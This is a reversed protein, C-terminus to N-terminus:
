QFALSTINASPTNPIPASGFSHTLPSFGSGVQPQTYTVDFQLVAPTAMTATEVLDIDFYGISDTVATRVGQAIIIGNNIFTDFNTVSVTAGVIPNEKEDLIYGFVTCTQPPTPEPGFYSYTLSLSSLAPTSSGTASHLLAYPVVYAGLSIPLSGANTQVDSALNSQAYSGDSIAWTVGNFWYNSAGIKLYFKVGDSGTATIGALFNFLADMTLAMNPAVYPSSTPYIQGTYNLTFLAASMQINANNTTYVNVNVTNALPLTAIHASIVAATNSQAFTLNSTTWVTGNWYLGNITYQPSNTDTITTSIWALISGLGSYTFTPLSITDANFNYDPLPTVSSPGVVSTYIALSSISFNANGDAPVGDTGVYAATSATRVGTTNVTAGFQSGNIFLKTAGNTIDLQLVFTYSTGSVPSWLGFDFGNIIATGTSNSVTLKLHGTSQGHLLAFYNNTGANGYMIQNAGPVGTYNPKYVFAITGINGIVYDVPLQAYKNTSGTLNLVSAAVAAGNFATVTLGGTGYNVNLFSDWAAYAALTAPAQNKQRMVGGVFETYTPNYTFGTGSAYNQSFTGPNNNLILKASTGDFGVKTSDYLFSTGSTYNYTTTISM